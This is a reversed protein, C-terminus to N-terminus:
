AIWAIITGIVGAVMLVVGFAVNLRNARDAQRWAEGWTALQDAFQATLREIRDM